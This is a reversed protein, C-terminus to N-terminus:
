VMIGASSFGGDVHLVHGTVYSSEDAVLFLVAEAVEAPTGYRRMPVRSAFARKTDPAHMQAVLETEIPGPSVCNARVGLPALELAITRTLNIVGAKSAGYAARRVSGLEGATSAFTVITGGGARVMLRAAAQCCRFTGGLNVDIMRSWTEASTELFPQEVGIGACHVLADIGGLAREAAATAEGVSRDQAVDLALGIHSPGLAAAVARAATDDIDAIAMRAGEAALRRATAAGIGRGGGTLLIRKGALRSM